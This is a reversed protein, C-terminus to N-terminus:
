YACCVGVPEKSCVPDRLVSTLWEEQHEDVRAMGIIARADNEFQERRMYGKDCLAALQRVVTAAHAGIHALKVIDNLNAKIDHAFTMMAILSATDAESYGSELSLIAVGGGYPTLRFKMDALIKEVIALRDDKSNRFLSFM